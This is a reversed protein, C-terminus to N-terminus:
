VSGDKRRWVPEASVTGHELCRRRIEDREAPDVYVQSGELRLVEEVSEYGLMSVMAPNVSLFQGDLSIQYIGFVAHEVLSRFRAESARLAQQARRYAHRQEVERRAREIAPTLRELRGKVLFDDAGQKLAAVAVDEGVADCVVIFPLENGSAHLVKMAATASFSALEYDSIVVDWTNRILAGAMEDATGVRLATVERGPRRLERLILEVDAESDAVVLVRM